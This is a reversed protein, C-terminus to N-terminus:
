TTVEEDGGSPGVAGAPEAGDAPLRLRVRWGGDATPGAALEAGVLQARERMGVLGFGRHGREPAAASPPAENVVDLVVDDDHRLVVRVAAGPAHDRANALAEQAVRYFTVDAIPAMDRAPGERVLEVPTGTDRTTRVLHDLTALGPVPAGGDVLGGDTGDAGDAGDPERLAGVVQRLDHLTEKGQSRVWAATRRAADPDRDILKEVVAAQVVMGSLHHAAIDHLERAMRSRERRVAADARTRQVEIAEAATAQLLDVYRRRTAVYMGALAPAAYVLLGTLAQGVVLWVVTLAPSVDQPGAASVAVSAVAVGATDVLASLGVVWSATRPRLVSGCTYAAIAQAPGRVSGGAPLLPMLALQLLLVVVLCLAPRIRRLCLVAGQACITVIVATVQFPTLRMQAAVQPDALLLLVLAASGVAVLAGLACDRRFPTTLGVATLRRDIRAAPGGSRDVDVTGADAFLSSM